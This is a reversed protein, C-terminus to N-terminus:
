KEEPQNKVVIVLRVAPGQAAVDGEPPREEEWALKPEAPSITQGASDATEAPVKLSVDSLGRQNLREMHSAVIQLRSPNTQRILEKMQDPRVSEVVIAKPISSDSPALVFQQRSCMTWVPELEKLLSAMQAQSCQIYYMAHDEFRESSVSLLLKQAIVSKKIFENVAIPQDTLLTLSGLVLVTGQEPAAAMEKAPDESSGKESVVFPGVTQEPPKVIQLVVLALIALPLLIMAAAAATWRFLLRLRGILHLPVAPESNLIMRRELRLLIENKLGEPAKEIPLAGLLEKQRYLAHLEKRLSPNHQALRKLETQQRENLQGDLLGHILSDIQEREQEKM